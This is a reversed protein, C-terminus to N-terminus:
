SAGRKCAILMTSTLTTYDNECCTVELGRYTEAACTAIRVLRVDHALGFGTLCISSRLRLYIRLHRFEPTGVVYSIQMVQLKRAPRADEMMGLNRVCRCVHFWMYCVSLPM